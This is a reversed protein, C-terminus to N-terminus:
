GLLSRWHLLSDNEPRECCDEAHEEARPAHGESLDRDRLAPLDYGRTLCAFECM